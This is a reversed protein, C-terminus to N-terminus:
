LVYKDSLRKYTSLVKNPYISPPTINQVMIKNFETEGINYAILAKRINDYNEILYGLYHSGLFINYSPDLLDGRPLGFKKVLGAATNPMVQMLGHANTESIQNNKASSEVLIVSMILRPDINQSEANYQIAKAIRLVEVDSFGIAYDKVMVAIKYLYELQENIPAISAMQVEVMGVRDVPVYRTDPIIAICFILIFLYLKIKM